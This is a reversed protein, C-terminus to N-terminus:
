YEDAKHKMNPDLNGDHRYEQWYKSSKLLAEQDSKTSRCQFAFDIRAKHVLFFEVGCVGQGETVLM